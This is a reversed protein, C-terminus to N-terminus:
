FNVPKIIKDKSISKLEQEMLPVRCGCCFFLGVTSVYLAIEIEERYKIWYYGDERGM